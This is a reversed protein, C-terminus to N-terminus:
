DNKLLRLGNLTVLLSTGMDGLVALWLSLQGPIVLMLIATKVLISFAINQKIVRLTRRGLRITFALKSLDDAMLTIDATELAADSGAVGMAIGLSSAALAPADNVGDGVMAVKGYQAMLSKIANVKDEPLLGAQFEDISAERAAAEAAQPNDGTMMFIKAIGSKKISQVADAANPRLEDSIAIIGLIDTNDALLVITNGQQELRFIQDAVDNLDYGQEALLRPNGVLYEIGNIRGKAGLSGIAQNNDAAGFALGKKRSYEVISRALPHQSRYEVSAAIRVVEDEHGAILSHVYVVKPRGSTLTGTKDFVMVSLKASEELSAGGKILVGHRAASGIASVISVPTSIVLACPCAVLLIGLAEYFWHQFPQGLLLSPVVAVLVAATLVSPTYYRSFRDVYQQSPARQDQAEEVMHIIKQLTTDTPERDSRFEIFGFTNLTGAFVRDGPAKDVPVSEGTIPSQDVATSGTIVFGDVPIREGPHVCVVDGILIERVPILLERGNRKVLAQDPSLEMLSRISKRTKDMTYAQMANGLSFLFVVVAGEQWQGIGIAGCVALIMLANMDLERTGVLAAFGTRAPLYAGTIISIIYAIRCYETQVGSFQLIVAIFLFIASFFASIAYKNTKWFPAPPHKESLNEESWADYGMSRTAAIIDPLLNQHRVQMRAAGYNVRVNEVGPLMKIRKELRAACDACDLGELRLTSTLTAQSDPSFGNQELFNQIEVPHIFVPNFLIDIRQQLPDWVSDSVGQLASLKKQLGAINQYNDESYYFSAKDIQKELHIVM